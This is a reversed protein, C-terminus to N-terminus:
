FYCHYSPLTALAQVELEEPPQPLPIMVLGPTLLRTQSIFHFGMGGFALAVYLIGRNCAM